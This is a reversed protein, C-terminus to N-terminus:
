SAGDGPEPAPRQELDGIRQKARTADYQGIGWQIAHCCWLYRWDWDYLDWEWTDTFSFGDVRYITVRHGAGVHVRRRLNVVGDETLGEVREGCICDVTSTAGYEFDALAQRAGAEYYIDEADLIETRIAKGLGIPAGGNVADIFAEIVLHRFKEESYSKVRTDGRVKEAWYQPNIRQGCFFEFMDTARAFVFTGCDGTIVLNDPWTVLDFWYFPSRERKGTKENTTVRQFRLHRYLGDDRIVTMEHQATDGKFQDAMDRLPALQRARARQHLRHLGDGSM